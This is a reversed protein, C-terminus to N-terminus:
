KLNLNDKKIHANNNDIVSALIIVFMFPADIIPQSFLATIFIPFISLMYGKKNIVILNPAFYIALLLFVGIIGIMHSYAVFNIGSNELMPSNGIGIGFPNEFLMKLSQLMVSTRDTVSTGHTVLKDALGVYPAYMIIVYIMPIVFLSIIKKGNLLMKFCITAVFVAIGATSFTAIIGTILVIKNKWNELGYHKLSVYAWIIFAQTIGAERFFGLFRQFVHNEVTMVGYIPTLPFYINRPNDYVDIQFLVLSDLPIVLSLIITIYYSVILLIMFQICLRFLRFHVKIDSLLFAFSFTVFINTIFGKITFDLIPSNTIISQVIVYMGYVSILIVTPLVDARLDIRKIQYNEIFFLFICCGLILLGLATYNEGLASPRITLLTLFLLFVKGNKM